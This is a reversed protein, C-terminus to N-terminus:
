EKKKRGAGSGPNGKEEDKAIQESLMRARGTWRDKGDTDLTMAKAFDAKAQKMWGSKMFIEGRNTLSVIDDPKLELAQTYEVIAEADRKERQLITGLMGHYYPNKFDLVTLAKFCKEADEYRGNKFQAYGVEAAIELSEPSLNLVDAWSLEGEVFAKFRYAEKEIEEKPVDKLKEQLAQFFEDIQQKTKPDLKEKAMTPGTKSFGLDKELNLM